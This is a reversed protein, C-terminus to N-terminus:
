RRGKRSPPPVERTSRGKRVPVAMVAREAQDTDIVAAEVAKGAPVCLGQKIRIVAVAESEEYVEGPQRPGAADGFSQLVRLNM